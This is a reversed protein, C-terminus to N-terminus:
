IKRSKSKKPPTPQITPKPALEPALKPPLTAATPPALESALKPRVMPPRKLLNAQITSDLRNASLNRHIDSAKIKEGKTEYQVGILKGGENQKLLTQIGYMLMMRSYEDIGKPFRTLVSTHAQLVSAKIDKKEAQKEEQVQRATKLGRALAITEALRSSRNSLFADDYAKGQLDIRNVYLHVHQHAKDRHAFAVYQHEQLDMGKVFDRVLLRLNGGSLKQGDEITPSLVFALTNKQCRTNFDQFLRFEREIEAPTQGQVYQRDIEVANLKEGAYALANGAHKISSGRGIM